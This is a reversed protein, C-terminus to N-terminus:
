AAKRLWSVDRAPRNTRIFSMNCGIIRMDTVRLMMMMVPMKIKQLSSVQKRHGNRLRIKVSSGPWTLELLSHVKVTGIISNLPTNVALSSPSQCAWRGQPINVNM